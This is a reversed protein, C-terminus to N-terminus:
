TRETHVGIVGRESAAVFEWFERAPGSPFSARMQEVAAAVNLGSGYLMRYADKIQKRQAPGIGARRMGVVNLGMVVNITMPRSTCFPPVDQSVGSAGGLMALRGIRCFQHVGCNASM